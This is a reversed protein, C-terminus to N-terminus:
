AAEVMVRLVTYDTISDAEAGSLIQEYTTFSSPAPTHSWSAITTAGQRLRVTLNGTGQIRYRVKHDVNSQPDGAPQMAIEFASGATTTRDYDADNAATEDLTAYLDAGTSPVWAGSSVDSVPRLVQVQPSGPVHGVLAIAGVGPAALANAPALSTPANGALAVAGPAPAREVNATTQLTPAVGALAIGGADPAATANDTAVLAPALGALGIAGADPACLTDSSGAGVTATPAAGLLAVAGTDTAFATDTAPAAGALALDATDPVLVAGLILEPAYGDLASSGADPQSAGALQLLVSMGM